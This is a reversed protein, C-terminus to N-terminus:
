NKICRVSIGSGNPEPLRVVKDVKNGILVMEAFTSNYGTSSWWLGERDNYVYDNISYIINHPWFAGQLSARFGGPLATFGSENTGTNTGIWHDTGAEKLKLGAINEGGLFNILIVWENDTPVHWGTPCLNGTNVSYWNYMAGYTNKYTSESNNYWCCGPTTLAAWATNSTILPIDSNNNFKKTRLNEAMWIQNGITQTYYINEEVDSVTGTRTTFVLENGYATGLNNIAYARVYYTTNASLDILQSSYNGPGTLDTTKSDATTPLQTTSWCVGRSTITSGGDYTINGECEASNMTVNIVSNTSFYPLSYVQNTAFSIQAGFTTGISNTAFAKIYYTNGPTLGMLNTSFIGTDAGIQVKTGTIEPNRILSWFVGRETVATLGQSSVRGGAKASTNTFYTVNSTTVLPVEPCTTFQISSGFATGYSNTAYSRVFYITNSTLGSLASTFGGNGSGDSTKFNATTPNPSTSWCVGRTTIPARGGWSISGGSVATTMTVSTVNKTTIMYPTNPLWDTPSSKDERLCGTLSVSTLIIVSFLRLYTRKKKM